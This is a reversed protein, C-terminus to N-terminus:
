PKLAAAPREVRLVALERVHQELTPRVYFFQLQDKDQLHYAIGDFLAQEAEDEAVFVVECTETADDSEPDAYRYVEVADHELSPTVNAEAMFKVSSGRRQFGCWRDATNIILKLGGAAEEVAVSSVLATDGYLHIKM